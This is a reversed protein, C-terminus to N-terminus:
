LLKNVAWLGMIAMKLSKTGKSALQGPQAARHRGTRTGLERRAASCAGQAERSAQAEWAAMQQEPPPPADQRPATQM